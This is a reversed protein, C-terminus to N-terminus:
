KDKKVETKVFVKGIGVFVEQQSPTMARFVRLLDDEAGGKGPSLPIDLLYDSSVKFYAALRKLTDFDPESTGSVYGNMTSPAINIASAVQKQTINQEEILQEAIKSPFRIRFDCCCASLGVRYRDVAFSYSDALPDGGPIM